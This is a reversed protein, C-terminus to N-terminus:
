LGNLTLTRWLERVLAYAYAYGRPEESARPGAVNLQRIEEDRVFHLAQRAAEDSPVVTADVIFCPRGLKQCFEITRATGGEARGFTIILAGDSDEVNRQTRELHGGGPLEALPYRDPIPGDEAMRGAPCWGGCPVGLALAADLAGRDVGTQGGSVVSFWTSIRAPV